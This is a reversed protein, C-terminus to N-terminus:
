LNLFNGFLLGSLDRGWARASSYSGSGERIRMTDKTRQSDGPKKGVVNKGVHPYYRQTYAHSHIKFDSTPVM